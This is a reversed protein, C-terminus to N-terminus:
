TIDITNLLEGSSDDFVFIYDGCTEFTYSGGSKIEDAPQEAIVEWEEVLYTLYKGDYYTIVKKSDAYLIREFRNTRHSYMEQSSLNIKILVDYGHNELEPSFDIAKAKFPPFEIQTGIIILEGKDIIFDDSYKAKDPLSVVDKSKDDENLPKQVFESSRISLSFLADNIEAFGFINYRFVPTFENSFIEFSVIRDNETIAIAQLNESLSIEYYGNDTKPLVSVYDFSTFSNMDYTCLKTKGNNLLRTYFLTTNCAFMESVNESYIINLVENTKINMIIIQGNDFIFLNNDNSSIIDPDTGNYIIETKGKYNKIVDNGNIYYYTNNYNDYMVRDCRSNPNSNKVTISATIEPSDNHLYVRIIYFLLFIVAFGGVFFMVTRIAKKM